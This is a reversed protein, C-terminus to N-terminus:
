LYRQGDKGCFGQLDFETESAESDAVELSWTSSDSELVLM